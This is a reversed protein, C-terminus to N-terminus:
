TEFVATTDVSEEGANAHAVPAIWACAPPRRNSGGLEMESPGPTIGNERAANRPRARSEMIDGHVGCRLEAIKPSDHEAIAGQLPTQAPDRVPRRECLSQELDRTLLSDLQSSCFDVLLPSSLM